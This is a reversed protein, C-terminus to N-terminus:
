HLIPQYPRLASYVPTILCKLLTAGDYKIIMASALCHPNYVPYAVYLVLLSLIPFSLGSISSPVCSFSLIFVIHLLARARCYTTGLLTKVATRQAHCPSVPISPRASTTNAPSLPRDHLTLLVYTLHLFLPARLPITLRALRPPLFRAIRTTTILLLRTPSAVAGLGDRPRFHDTGTGLRCCM